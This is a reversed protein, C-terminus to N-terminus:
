GSDGDCVRELIVAAASEAPATAPCLESQAPARLEDVDCELQQSRQLVTGFRLDDIMSLPSGTFGDATLLAAEDVYAVYLESLIEALEGCSEAASAPAVYTAEIEALSVVVFVALGGAEYAGPAHDFIVYEGPGVVVPLTDGPALDPVTGDWDEGTVEPWHLGFYGREPDSEEADSVVGSENLDVGGDRIPLHFPDGAFLIAVVPHHVTDDANTIMLEVGGGADIVGAPDITVGSADFTVQVEVGQPQEIPEPCGLAVTFGAAAAASELARCGSALADNAHAFEPDEYLAEADEFTKLNEGLDSAIAAWARRSSLFDDHEVALEAPPVLAAILETAAEFPGITCAGFMTQLFEEVVAPPSAESVPNSASVEEACARNRNDAEGLVNALDVLYAETPTRADTGPGGTNSPSLSTTTEEAAGGGPTAGVSTTTAEGSTGSGENGGCSAAVLLLLAVVIRNRSM